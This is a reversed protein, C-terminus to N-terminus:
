IEFILIGGFDDGLMSISYTLIDFIVLDFEKKAGGELDFYFKM